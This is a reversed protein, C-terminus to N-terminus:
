YRTGVAKILEQKVMDITLNEIVCLADCYSQPTAQDAPFLPVMEPGIQPEGPTHISNPQDSFWVFKKCTNKKIWNMCHM